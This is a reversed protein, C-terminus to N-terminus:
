FILAVYCSFAMVSVDVVGASLDGYPSCVAKVHSSLSVQSGATDDVTNAFGLVKDKFNHVESISLVDITDLFGM